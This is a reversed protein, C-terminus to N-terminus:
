SQNVELPSGETRSLQVYDWETRKKGKPKVTSMVIIQSKSKALARLTSALTGADWMRDDVVILYESATLDGEEGLAAAMAAIVRAETSGSLATHLTGFDTQTMGKRIGCVLRGDDVHFYLDEGRPLFSSTTKRFASIESRLNFDQQMVELLALKLQKWDDERNSAHLEGNKAAVAVKALRSHLLVEALHHRADASNPIRQMAEKGGMQSVLWELTHSAQLGPNSKYELYLTRILDRLVSRDLGDWAGAMVEDSVPHVSGLSELAIRSAKIAASQHRQRKGVRSILDSLCEAGGGPLLVQDLLLHLEPPVAKYLAARDRPPFLKDWFFKAKTEESGKLAGHIELTSLIAGNPGTRAPAKGRELTWQCTEGSDLTAEAHAHDQGHPILAALLTGQKVSDRYLLGTATGTRTLEVAETIASKGTENDGILVTKPGLEVTYDNGDPSKINTTISKVLAM